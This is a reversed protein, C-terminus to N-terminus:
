AWLLTRWINGYLDPKKWSSRAPDNAISPISAALENLESVKYTSIGRLPKDPYEVHIGTKVIPFIECIGYRGRTIYKIHIWPEDTDYIYELYSGNMTNEILINKKYYAAFANISLLSTKKNTILESMIEQAAGLTIKKNINKLVNKNSKLYEMIKAKEVFEANMYKNGIALYQEYGYHAIYLCWFLSDIKDPILLKSGGRQLSPQVIVNVVSQPPHQQEFAGESVITCANNDIAHVADAVDDVDAVENEFDIYEKTYMFKELRIEVDKTSDFKNYPYFIQYLNNM